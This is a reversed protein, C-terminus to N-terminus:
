MFEGIGNDYGCFIEPAPCVHRNFLLLNYNSTSISQGVNMQMNQQCETQVTKQQSLFVPHM